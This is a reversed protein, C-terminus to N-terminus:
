NNELILSSGALIKCSWRYTRGTSTSLINKSNNRGDKLRMNVDTDFTITKLLYKSDKQEMTYSLVESEQLKTAISESNVLFLGSGVAIFENNISLVSLSFFNLDTKNTYEYANVGLSFDENLFFDNGYYITGDEEIIRRESIVDAASYITEGKSVMKNEFHDFIEFKIIRQEVAQQDSLDEECSLFLFIFLVFAVYKLKKNKM